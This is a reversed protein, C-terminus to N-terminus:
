ERNWELFFSHARKIKKEREREWVCVNKYKEKENEDNKENIFM